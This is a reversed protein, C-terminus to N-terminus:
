SMKILWEEIWSWSIEGLVSLKLTSPVNIAKFGHAWLDFWSLINIDQKSDRESKEKLFFLMNFAYCNLGLFQTEIAHKLFHTELLLSNASYGM